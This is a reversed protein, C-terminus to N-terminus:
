INRPTAGIGTVVSADQPAKRQIILLRMKYLVSPLYKGGNIGWLHNLAEFNLSYLDFILKEVGVAKLAPDTFVNQAQFFEVIDSILRLSEAYSSKNASFLVYINLFVESSQAITKPLGDDGSVKRHFPQNRLTNEQEINVVTAIGVNNLNQTACDQGSDILSVSGTVIEPPSTQGLDVNIRNVIWTLAVDIM